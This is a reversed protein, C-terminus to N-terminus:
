SPFSDIIYAKVPLQETVSSARPNTADYKTKLFNCGSSKVRLDHKCQPLLKTGNKSQLSPSVQTDLYVLFYYRPMLQVTIPAQHPDPHQLASAYTRYMTFKHSQTACRRLYNSKEGGQIQCISKKRGSLRRSSAVPSSYRQIGM